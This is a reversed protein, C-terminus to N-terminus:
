KASEGGDVTYAAGTVYSAEDSALFLAVAAVEEPKGFRKTPNYRRYEEVEEKLDFGQFLMPTEIPGPCICNVRIKRTANELALAKTFNVVGAKTACYITSEAEAVLGLASSNSIIVGGEKQRLMQEVAFKSGWIVGMLNVGVTKEVIESTVKELRSPHYVGANNFMIDLRGYKKVVGAVLSELEEKKSVDTRVFEVGLERGVKEGKEPDSSAIVVKAGEKSFLAGTAKGIGSSGGTIIAVKNKLRM